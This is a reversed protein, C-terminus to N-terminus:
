AATMAWGTVFTISFYEKGNGLPRYYSLANLENLNCYKFLHLINYLPNYKVNKQNLM